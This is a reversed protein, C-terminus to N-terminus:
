FKCEVPPVIGEREISLLAKGGTYTIVWISDYDKPRWAPPNSVGLAAAMQAPRGAM